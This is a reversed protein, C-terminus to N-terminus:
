ENTETLMPPIKREYSFPGLNLVIMLDDKGDNIKRITGTM